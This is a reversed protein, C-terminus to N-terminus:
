KVNSKLPTGKLKEFAVRQEETLIKMIKARRERELIQYEAPGPKDITGSKVARVEADQIELWVAKIQSQQKDTLGLEKAIGSDSLVAIPVPHTQIHIQHLRTQQEPTLLKNLEDVHNNRAKHLTEERRQVDYFLRRKLGSIERPSRYPGGELTQSYNRKVKSTRNKWKRTLRSTCNKCRKLSTPASGLIPPLPKTGILHLPISKRWGFDKPITSVIEARAEVTLAMAFAAPVVALKCLIHLQMTGHSRRLVSYLGVAIARQENVDSQGYRTSSGRRRVVAFALGPLAFALLVISAPEPVAALSGGGSKLITLLSQVDANNLVGDGNVDGMSVLDAAAVYDPSKYSNLDTLAALM